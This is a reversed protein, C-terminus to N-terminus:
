QATPDNVRGSFLIAGTAQDTIFFFFPRDLVITAPEIPEGGGSSGSVTGVVVATAAAAKTGEEDVDIVVKHIVDQLRLSGNEPRLIGSFDAEPTFAVEMGLDGLAQKLSADSGFSFKPITINVHRYTMADFIAELAAGDLSEEFADATGEAPLVLQMKVPVDAYSLAVAEWGDGAGHSTDQAGHMMPVSVSTGDGRKFTELMTSSKNFATNWAADFSIANVLVARTEEEDVVGELLQPIMGDTQTKVWANILGEAQAQNRFDALRVSAGYSEGLVKLFSPEVPLEAQVWLANAAHLRFGAGKRESSAEARKQLELDVHNFAAHLRAQPLEFRMARAIAEETTGRAGAYTMALATSVSYPSYVVNATASHLARGLELAFSANNRSLSERDEEPVDPAEIRTADSPLVCGPKPEFCEGSVETSGGGGTGAGEGPGGGGGTAGAGPDSGCGM